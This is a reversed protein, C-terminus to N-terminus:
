KLYGGSVVELAMVKLNDAGVPAAAVADETVELAPFHFWAHEVRAKELEVYVSVGEPDVCVM